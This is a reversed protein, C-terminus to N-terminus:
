GGMEIRPLAHLLEPPLVDSASWIELGILEGTEADHDRLGWVEERTEVAGGVPRVRIYALDGRPAYYSEPEIAM